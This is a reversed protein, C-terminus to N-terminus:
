GSTGSHFLWAALFVAEVSAVAVIAKPWSVAQQRNKKFPLLYSYQKLTLDQWTPGQGLFNQASIQSSSGPVGVGDLHFVKLMKLHLFTWM